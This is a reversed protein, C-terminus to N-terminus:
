SGKLSPPWAPPWSGAGYLLKRLLPASLDGIEKSFSGLVLAPPSSGGLAVRSALSGPMWTVEPDQSGLPVDPAGSQRRKPFAM